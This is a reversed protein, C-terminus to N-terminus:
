GRRWRLKLTKGPNYAWKSEGRVKKIHLIVILIVFFAVFAMASLLCLTNTSLATYLDTLPDAM